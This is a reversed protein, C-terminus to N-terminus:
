AASREQCTLSLIVGLAHRKEERYLCYLLFPLATAGFGLLAHIWIHQRKSRGLLLYASIGVVIQLVYFSGCFLIDVHGHPNPERIEFQDL